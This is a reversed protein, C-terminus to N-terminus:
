PLGANFRPTSQRNPSVHRRENRQRNTRRSVRQRERLREVNDEKVISIKGGWIRWVRALFVFRRNAALTQGKFSAACAHKLYPGSRGLNCRSFPRKCWESSYVIDVSQWRVTTPYGTGHNTHLHLFSTMEAATLTAHCLATAHIACNILTMLFQYHAVLWVIRQVSLASCITEKHLYKLCTCM